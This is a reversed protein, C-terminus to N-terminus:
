RRRMGDNSRVQVVVRGSSRSAMSSEKGDDNEIARAVMENAVIWGLQARSTMMEPNWKAEGNSRAKCDNIEVM